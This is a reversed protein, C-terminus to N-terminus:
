LTSVCSTGLEHFRTRSQSFGIVLPVPAFNSLSATKSCGGCYGVKPVFGSAPSFVTWVDQKVVERKVRESM